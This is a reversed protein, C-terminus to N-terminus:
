VLLVVTRILALAEPARPAEGRPSALLPSVPPIEAAVSSAQPAFTALRLEIPRRRDESSGPIPLDVCPCPEDSAPPAVEEHGDCGACELASTEVEISVCGDPELCIVFGSSPTLGIVLVVAFCVFATLRQLIPAM